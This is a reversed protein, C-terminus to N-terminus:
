LEAANEVHNDSFRSMAGSVGRFRGTQTSFVSAIEGNKATVRGFKVWKPPTKPLGM